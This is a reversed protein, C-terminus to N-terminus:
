MRRSTTSRKVNHVEGAWEGQQELADIIERATEEPAREVSANIVSVNQGVLEGPGYGFMEDFKSNTYVITWDRARVVMIGEAMNKIVESQLRLEEEVLKRRTINQLMILRAPGHGWITETAIAEGTCLGGQANRIAVETPAGDPVNLDLPQGVMQHYSRGLMTRAASNAFRVVSSSDTVIMGVLSMEILKSLNGRRPDLRWGAEWSLM